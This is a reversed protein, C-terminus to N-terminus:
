TDPSRRVELPNFRLHNCMINYNQGITEFGEVFHAVFTRPYGLHFLQDAPLAVTLNYREAFRFMINLVTSSATKHTKLFMVNTRARCPTPPILLQEHSKSIRCSPSLHPLSARQHQVGDRLAPLALGLQGESVM